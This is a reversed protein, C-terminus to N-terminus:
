QLVEKLQLIWNIMEMRIEDMDDREGDINEIYGLAKMGLRRVELDANAQAERALSQLLTAYRIDDVAERFGEWQITDLPGDYIGYVYCMPKYIGFSDNYPGLHHAYNDITNFGRLWNLFGYQRRSFAPNESGVHQTAYWACRKGCALYNWKGPMPNREPATPVDNWDLLHPNKSFFMPWVSLRFRFGERQWVTQAFRIRNTIANPGPEDGFNMYVDHHGILADMEAAMKKAAAACEEADGNQWGTVAGIRLLPKTAMGAEKMAELMFKLEERAKPTNIDFGGWGCRFPHMTQGHAVYDRLLAKYQRRALADDGGNYAKLIDLSLYNFFNVEFSMEPNNRPRPKPLVFDLVTVALPVAGVCTGDAATLAVTGRYTGAPTNTATHVTIWFQKSVDKGLSVPQLSKADRFDARMPYFNDMDHICPGVRRDLESPPNIWRETVTGDAATLRAYNSEKATDVRILDEDNVLLEPCLKWGGVDAFYSFWANRNQYWVKVLKIDVSEAPLVDGRSSVLESVDVRVKGLDRDSRVVFSGPEYEDKAMAIRVTGGMEGDAPVADPLRMVDSIPNVAWHALAASLFMTALM